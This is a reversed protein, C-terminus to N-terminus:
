GAALIRNTPFNLRTAASDDKPSDQEKEVVTQWADRLTTLLERVDTVAQLQKEVNAYKLHRLMFDYIRGLNAAVDGGKEHNLSYSLELLVDQVHILHNHITELRDPTEIAFAAEAKKLTRIGEDFLMMILEAPNATLVQNAVYKGIKNM